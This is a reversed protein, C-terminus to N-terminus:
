DNNIRNIIRMRVADPLWFTDGVDNVHYSCWTSIVPDGDKDISRSYVFMQFGCNDYKELFERVEKLNEELRSVAREKASVTEPKPGSVIKLPVVESM